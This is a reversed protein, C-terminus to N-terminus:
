ALPSFLIAQSTELMKYRFVECFKRLFMLDSESYGVIMFYNRAFALDSCAQRWDPSTTELIIM